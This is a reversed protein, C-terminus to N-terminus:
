CSGTNKSISDRIEDITRIKTFCGLTGDPDIKDVKERYKKIEDPEEYNSKKQKNNYKALHEKNKEEINLEERYKSLQEHCKKIAMRDKHIYKKMIKLIRDYYNPDCELKAKLLEKEVDNLNDKKALKNLLVEDEIEKIVKPSIDTMMKNKIMDCNSDDELLYEESVYSFYGRSKDRCIYFISKDKDIFTKVKTTLNRDSKSQLDKARIDMDNFDIYNLPVFNCNNYTTNQTNLSNNNYSQTNQSHVQSGITLKAHEFDIKKVTRETIQKEIELTLELKKIEKDVKQEKLIRKEETKCGKRCEIHKIYKHKDYIDECINCQYIVKNTKKECIKSSKLHILYNYKKKFDYNCRPCKYLVM